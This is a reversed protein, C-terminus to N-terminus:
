LRAGAIQQEHTTLSCDQARAVAAAAPFCERAVGRTVEVAHRDVFAAAIENQDTFSDHAEHSLDIALDPASVFVM